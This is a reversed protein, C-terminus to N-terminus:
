FLITGTQVNSEPLPFSGQFALAQFHVELGPHGSSVPIDVQVYGAGGVTGEFITFLSTFNNGIDLSFLGPLVSPVLDLSFVLFMLDGPDSGMTATTGTVSLLFGGSTFLDLAPPDPAVM